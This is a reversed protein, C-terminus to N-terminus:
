ECLKQLQRIASIVRHSEIRTRASSLNKFEKDRGLYNSRICYGSICSFVLDHDGSGNEISVLGTPIYSILASPLKEKISQKYIIQDCSIFNGNGDGINVAIFQATETFSPEANAIPSLTLFFAFVLATFNMKMDLEIATARKEPYGLCHWHEQRM